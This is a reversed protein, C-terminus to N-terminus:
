AAGEVAARIAGAADASLGQRRAERGAADAAERRIARLRRAGIEATRELRQVALALANLQEADVPGDNSDAGHALASEFALVRLLEVVHQGVEGAPSEGFKATWADAVERAERIRRGAREVRTAYRNLGAASLPREGAAALLPELRRLIDRQSVGARLLEDLRERIADPLQQIRGMRGRTGDAM